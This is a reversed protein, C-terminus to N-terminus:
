RITISNAKSMSNALIIVMTLKRLEQCLVTKLLHPEMIQSVAACTQKYCASYRELTYLLPQPMAVKAGHSVDIGM